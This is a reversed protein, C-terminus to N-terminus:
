RTLSHSEHGRDAYDGVIQVIGVLQLLLDVAQRFAVRLEADGLLGVAGHLFREDPGERARKAIFEGALDLVGPARGEALNAILHILSALGISALSIRASPHTVFVDM